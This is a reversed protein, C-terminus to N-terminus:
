GLIRNGHFGARRYQEMGPPAALCRGEVAQKREDVVLQRPDGAPSEFRFAGIVRQLGAREHVLGVETQDVGVDRPLVLRVEHRHGRAGHPPDQDIVRAAPPALLPAAARHLDLELVDRSDDRPGRHVDEIQVVHQFPEGLEVGALRRDDLQV